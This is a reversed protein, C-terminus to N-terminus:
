DEGVGYYDVGRPAAVHGGVPSEDEHPRTPGGLAILEDGTMVMADEARTELVVLCVVIAPHMRALVKGKAVAKEWEWRKDLMRWSGDASVGVGALKRALAVEAHTCQALTPGRVYLATSFVRPITLEVAEAGLMRTVVLGQGVDRMHRTRSAATFAAQQASEDM